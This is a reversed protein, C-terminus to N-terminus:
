SPKTNISNLCSQLHVEWSPIVGLLAETKSLDLVSYAPRKVASPFQDSACPKIDCTNGALEAIKQTFQFWTCQGGDTVHYTGREGRELLALSTAALHEASTPRGQQDDVVQLTDREATLKLMTRVFNKGWPAYLWSTRVLRYDCGSDKLRKEGEAKTRGYANIPDYPADVRYPSTECGNFVYDTSYHVLTASIQRAREGLYGVAEANIKMADAEHEEASDVNTWAACNVIADYGDLQAVQRADTIDIEDVDMQDHSIAKKALLESWARGLMGKAGIILVRTPLGSM